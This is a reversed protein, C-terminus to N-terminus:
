TSAVLFDEGTSPTFGDPRGAFYREAITRGSVHEVHAFGAERAMALMEEPRYFSVFPTNSRAAGQASMERGPRDREDVLDLELLYTMVLTSGPALTAVKALTAVTAEKTLYMSVGTSAMVAPKTPDFGNDVLRQLWDDGAEFDVPVLHLWEPVGYGTDQLRKRKWAQTEPQDIEFVQREGPHRQAFTDLGAGLIVYQEAAHGAVLDEVFRARGIVSGRFGATAKPDMDARRRWDDDPDALELGIKDVFVHPPQDFDVHIARWLAVRVATNDPGTM